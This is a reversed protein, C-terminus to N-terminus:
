DVLKDLKEQAKKALESNPAFQIIRSYSEQADHTKGASEFLLGLSLYNKANWPDLTLLEKRLKIARAIDGTTEHYFASASVIDVNHPYQELLSETLYKAETAYGSRFLTDALIIKYYPDLLPIKLVNQIKAILTSDQVNMGSNYSARVLLMNTDGRILFSLPIVTILVM